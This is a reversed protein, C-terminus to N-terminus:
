LADIAEAMKKPYQDNKLLYQNVFGKMLNSYKAMNAGYLMIYSSLEEFLADLMDSKETQMADKYVKTNKVYGHLIESGIQSRVIDRNYKSRKVYDLLSEDEYQRANLWRTIHGVISVIPYEAHVTNHTLTKIQKLLEISNDIIKTQYELHEEIRQQM